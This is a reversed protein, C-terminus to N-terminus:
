ATRGRQYERKAIAKRHDKNFTFRDLEMECWSGEGDANAEAKAKV